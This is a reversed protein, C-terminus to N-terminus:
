FHNHESVTRLPPNELDKPLPWKSIKPQESDVRSERGDRDRSIFDGMTHPSPPAGPFSDPITTLPMSVSTLGCQAQDKVKGNVRDDYSLQM